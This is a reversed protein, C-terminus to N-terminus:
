GLTVTDLTHYRSGDPHLESHVLAVENVAFRASCPTGALGGVNARPRLRALTLHGRFSRSDPPDGVMATAEVVAAALDHLGRVPLVLYGRGFRALTPGLEARAPPARLAELAAMAVPPSVEGLFRLTVHWQEPKTWRVGGRAPRELDELAEVVEPPPWAAVFLRAM